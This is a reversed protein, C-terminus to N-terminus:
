QAETETETPDELFVESGEQRELRRRLKANEKELAEVRGLLEVQERDLPGLGHHYRTWTDTM